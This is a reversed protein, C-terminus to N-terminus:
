APCLRCQALIRLRGLDHDSIGHVMVLAVCCAAQSAPSLGQTGQAKALIHLGVHAIWYDCFPARVQLVEKLVQATLHQGLM